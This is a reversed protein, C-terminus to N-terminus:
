RGTTAPQKWWPCPRRRSLDSDGAVSGEHALLLEYNGRELRLALEIHQRGARGEREAAAALDTLAEGPTAAASARGASTSRSDRRGSSLRCSTVPESSCTSGPASTRACFRGGAPPPLGSAPAPRSGKRTRRGLERRYRVAQELHYGVLEDREALDGAHEDLWDAFREHLDAREAKAMGHYAADRILLHRFRFADTGALQPTDPRVFEKRVLATLRNSLQPEDPSLASVAGHHFLEGEVAGRELVSREPAALQDLRAALLAQITPPVDVDGNGSAQVM